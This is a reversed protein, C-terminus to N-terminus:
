KNLIYFLCKFIDLEPSLFLETPLASAECSKPGSNSDGPGMYLCTLLVCRPHPHLCFFGWFELVLLGQRLFCLSGTEFLTSPLFQHGLKGSICWSM